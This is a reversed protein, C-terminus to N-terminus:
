IDSFMSKKKPLNYKQRKELKELAKIDGSQAMEFLKLDIIYAAYDKGEKYLKFIQSEENNLDNEVDNMDIGMISSIKDAGYGLAGMNKLMKCQDDTLNNM